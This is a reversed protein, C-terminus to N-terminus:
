PMKSTRKDGGTTISAPDQMFMLLGMGEPRPQVDAPLSWAQVGRGPLTRVINCAWTRGPPVGDGTLEILPIAAEIQWCNQESKVAVFWRPNWTRDGTCDDCVCGRQDVELRFYTAYDRDLDILLSVRDYPRLDADRPRVKVPPVYRDVPHRCRLAVYLFDRDYTLKVETPYDKLTDGAANRLGLPQQAQWCSEDFEGDLFPRTGTPPCFMVPKPSSGARSVLWLEAAAAARWPGDKHEAVYASYWQHAEKFDGLQRRAAQVCFQAAPDNGYIPGFAALRKGLDVSGQFWRRTDDQNEILGVQRVGVLESVNSFPQDENPNQAKRITTQSLVWFQGLEHRRRAESSANHRILWQYAEATLSHSPYRDALVLFVERALTWQGIRVYHNAIASLAAAAQEPSLKATMPGVQALVRNPDVLPGEPSEALVRLNRRTHLQKELEPPLEAVVAQRRRAQGGYALDVGQMLDHHNGAGPLKSDLLHYFREAPVELSSDALLALAPAAFDRASDQLRASSRTADLFIQSGTRSHWRGYLKKVEYPELALVQLQEPFATPDAAQAFATHLAEALLGEIPWGTVRPDPHDTLIVSPRWIRIALVLQRLLEQAAHDAYLLNWSQILENREARALHQPVPFQWLVEGAAGGALRMAAALREPEAAREPPSSLPDASSIRLGTALYGEEGGFQAVTDVPLGTPRAHVFLLAARQGGRHQVRWNQGGDATHLISGFEGVAWGKQSSTFFVGNLPLPQDTRVVHWSEGRDASHLVVSGPRGVVWIEDGVCHVGHFDWAAIVETPLRHAAYRWRDGGSNKSLLILGGQGVAVARSGVLQLDRIARGGLTDEMDAKHVLDQRLVGLRSWAGALTGTQADQFGAALWTTTRPGPLPRWTRGGDTTRFIGSPFQESGDGVAFGADGNLFHVRNLGPLTNMNARQWNLGGDRTFLLVGVSGQGHPLEERGAIWGTFPTLFHVSRLSARVGTPQREWDQGGDISHWVVGDDGVAWGEREDVFQVAHLAADDFNRLDGGRAVTACLVSALFATLIPRM